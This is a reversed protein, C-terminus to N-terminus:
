GIFKNEIFDVRLAQQVESLDCASLVLGSLNSARMKEVIMNMRDKPIDLKQVLEIVEHLNMEVLPM